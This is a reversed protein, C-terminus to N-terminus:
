FKVEKYGAYLGAQYDEGKNDMLQDNGKGDSWCGHALSPEGLCKAALDHMRASAEPDAYVESALMELRVIKTEMEAFRFVVWEPERRMM